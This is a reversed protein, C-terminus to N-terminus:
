CSKIGLDQRIIRWIFSWLKCAEEWLMECCVVSWLGAPVWGSRLPFLFSTHFSTVCFPLPLPPCLSDTGAGCLNLLCLLSLATLTTHPTPCVNARLVSKVVIKRETSEASPKGGRCCETSHKNRNTTHDPYLRYCVIPWLSKPSCTDMLRNHDCDYCMSHLSSPLICSYLTSLHQDVTTINVFLMSRVSTALM